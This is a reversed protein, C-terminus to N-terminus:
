RGTRHHREWRGKNWREARKQLSRAGVHECGIKQAPVGIDVALNLHQQARGELANHPATVAIKKTGFQNLAITFVFLTNKPVADGHGTLLATHNQGISLRPREPGDFRRQTIAIALHHPKAANREVDGLM